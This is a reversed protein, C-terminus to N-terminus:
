DTQWNYNERYWSITPEIGEEFSLLDTSDIGLPMLTEPNALVVSHEPEGARMPLYQIDAKNGICTNIISIHILPQFRPSLLCFGVEWFL